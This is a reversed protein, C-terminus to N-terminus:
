RSEGKGLPLRLVLTTGAGRRAIIDLEGGISEARDRLGALGEGGDPRLVIVDPDFGLGCALVRATM